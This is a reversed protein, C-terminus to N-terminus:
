TGKDTLNKNDLFLPQATLPPLSYIQQHKMKLPEFGRKELCNIKRPPATSHENPEHGLTRLNSGQGRVTKIIKPCLPCTASHGFADTKFVSTSITGHTRIGGQGKSILLKRIMILCKDSNLCLNSITRHPITAINVM